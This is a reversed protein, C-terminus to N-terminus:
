GSDHSVELDSPSCVGPRFWLDGWGVPYVTGVEPLM